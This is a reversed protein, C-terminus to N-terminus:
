RNLNTWATAIQGGLRINNCALDINVQMSKGETGKVFQSLIFPTVKKGSIGEKAAQELADRLVKDHLQPDLQKDEPLPNAVLVAQPLGLDDQAMLIKAIEEASEVRQDISVGSDTIYFGPYKNTRYGVVTTGLTELRELTKPIDLISKAGASVIVIPKRSVLTLDASEDFTEEAGRHVGGLGGTSFVKIGALHALHATAAVTTGGTKGQAMAIGLDRTSVKIVEPDEAIRVLDAEELGVHAIGDILAITAPVVGDDILIQEFLHAAELNKPRPFGHSIITSELAVVPKGEELAKAVAKSLKIKSTDM